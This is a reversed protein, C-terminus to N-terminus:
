GKRFAAIEQALRELVQNDPSEFAEKTPFYKAFLPKPKPFLTTFDAKAQRLAAFQDDIGQPWFGLRKLDPAKNFQDLTKPPWDPATEKKLARAAKKEEKAAAELAARRVEQSRAEVEAQKARRATELADRAAQSTTIDKERAERMRRERAEQESQIAQERAIRTAELAAEQAAFRVEEAARKARIAEQLKNFEQQKQEFEEQEQRCREPTLGLLTVLRHSQAPDLSDVIPAFVVKKDNLRTPQDEPRRLTAEFAEKVAEARLVSLQTSRGELTEKRYELERAQKGLTDSSVRAKYTKIQLDVKGAFTITLDVSGENINLDQRPTGHSVSALHGTDATQILRRLLYIEQLEFRKGAEEKPISEIIALLARNLELLKANREEPDVIREARRVEIDNTLAQVDSRQLTINMTLPISADLSSELFAGYASLAKEEAIVLPERLDFREFEKAVETRTLLEPAKPKREKTAPQHILAAQWPGDHIENAREHAEVGKCFNLISELRGRGREFASITTDQLLTKLGGEISQVDQKDYIFARAMRNVADAYRREVESAHEVTRSVVPYHFSGASELGMFYLKLTGQFVGL